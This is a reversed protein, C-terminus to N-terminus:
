HSNVDWIVWINNNYFNFNYINVALVVVIVLRIIHAMRKCSRTMNKAIHVGYNVM